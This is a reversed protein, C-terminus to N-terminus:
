KETAINSDPTRPLLLSIDNTEEGRGDEERERERQLRWGIYTIEDQPPTQRGQM